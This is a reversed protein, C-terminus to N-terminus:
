CAKDNFNYYGPGLDASDTVSKDYKRNDTKCSAICDNFNADYNFANPGPLGRENCIKPKVLIPTVTTTVTQTIADGAVTQTVQTQSTIQVTKATATVTRTIPQAICSCASSIRSEAFLRLAPPCAPRNNRKKKQYITKTGATITVTVTATSVDGTITNTMMQKKLGEQMAPSANISKQLTETLIPGLAVTNCRVNDKGYTTATHRTLAHVAAKSAAYAVRLPEPTGLYHGGMSSINIITGGSAQKLHPLAYKTTLAYGTTNVQFTRHWIEADMDHVARDNGLTKPSLDAGINLLSDLGGLWETGKEILNKISQEDALDFEIVTASGGSNNIEAGVDKAAAINIDAVVVKAGRAALLKATGAGVGTAAGAVIVRLGTITAM